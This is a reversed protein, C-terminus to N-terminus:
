EPAKLPARFKRRLTFRATKAVLANPDNLHNRLSAIVEQRHPGVKQPFQGLAEITAHRVLSEKDEMLEVLAAAIIPAQADQVTATAGLARISGIRIELAQSRAVEILTPVAKASKIQALQETAVTKYFSQGKKFMRILVPVALEGHTSLERVAAENVDYHGDRDIIHALLDLVGPNDSQAVKEVIELRLMTNNFEGVPEADYIKKLETLDDPLDIKPPRVFRADGGVICYLHKATRIFLRGDSIAPSAYCPEEELPNSAVEEITPEPTDLGNVKLVYTRAKEDSWYIHQRSAVPSSTFRSRIRHSLIGVGDIDVFKMRGDDGPILFLDKYILPSVVYPGGTPLHMRVHTDSIDGHGSPDIIKSPGNRGSTVYVYGNHYLPSPTTAHKMKGCSWLPEGTTADYSVITEANVVIQQRGEHTILLPTAYHLGGSRETHWREEGTEQDVAVIFSKGRHDCKIVVMDNVLIPSSAMNYNNEFPGLPLTWMVQGTFDLAVLGPSDFFAYVRKGDTVPTPAAYGARPYTKTPDAPISTQWLFEGTEVDLCIILRTMGGEASAAVFVRDQWVIPGSVGEGALRTKWAIGNEADWYVPVNKDSSVGSGDGRWGPWNSSVRLPSMSSACGILLATVSVIPLLRKVTLTTPQVM